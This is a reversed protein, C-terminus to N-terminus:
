AEKKAFTLGIVENPKRVKEIICQMEKSNELYALQRECTHINSEYIASEKYPIKSNPMRKERYEADRKMKLNSLWKTYFTDYTELVSIEDNTFNFSDLKSLVDSYLLSNLERGYPLKDSMIAGEKSDSLKEERNEKKRNGLFICLGIFFSSIFYFLSGEKYLFYDIICITYNIMFLIGVTGFYRRMADETKLLKEGIFSASGYGIYFTFFFAIDELRYRIFKAGIGSVVVCVLAFLVNRILNIVAYGLLACFGVKIKSVKKETENM